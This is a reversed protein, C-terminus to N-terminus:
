VTNLEKLSFLHLSRLARGSTTKTHTTRSPGRSNTRVVEAVVLSLPFLQPGFIVIQDEGNYPIESALVDLFSRKVDKQSDGHLHRTGDPGCTQCRGTDEPDLNRAPRGSTHVMHGFLGPRRAAIDYQWLDALLELNLNLGFMTFLYEKGQSMVYVMGGLVRIFSPGLRGAYAREGAYTSGFSITFTNWDITGTPNLQTWDSADGAGGIKWSWFDFGRWLLLESDEERKM